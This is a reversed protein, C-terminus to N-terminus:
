ANPRYGSRRRSTTPKMPTWSWRQSREDRTSVAFLVMKWAVCTPFDCSIVMFDDHFGMLDHNFGMFGGNRSPSVMNFGGDELRKLGLHKGPAKGDLGGVVYIRGALAFSAHGVRPISM